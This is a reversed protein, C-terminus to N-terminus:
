NDLQNIIIVPPPHPVQLAPDLVLAGDDADVAEQVRHLGEDGVAVVGADPLDLVDVREGAPLVHSSIISKNNRIKCVNMRIEPVVFYAAVHRLKAHLRGVEPQDLDDPPAREALHLQHPM